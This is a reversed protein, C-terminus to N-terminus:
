KKSSSLLLFLIFVGLVPNATIVPLLVMALLLSGCACNGSNEPFM